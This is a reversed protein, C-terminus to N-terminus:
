KQILILLLRSLSIENGLEDKLQFGAESKGSVTLHQKKGIQM